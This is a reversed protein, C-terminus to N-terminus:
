GSKKSSSFEREYDFALSSCRLLFDPAFGNKTEKEILRLDHAFCKPCPLKRFVNNLITIDMLQFGSLLDGDVTMEEEELLPNIKSASSFQDQIYVCFFWSEKQNINLSDIDQYHFINDQLDNVHDWVKGQGLVACSFHSGQHRVLGKLTYQRGHINVCMDFSKREDIEKQFEILCVKPPILSKVKLNECEYGCTCLLSKNQVLPDLLQPWGNYNELSMLDLESIYNLM